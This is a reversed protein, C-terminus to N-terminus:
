SSRSGKGTVAKRSISWGGGGFSSIMSGNKANLAVPRYGTTVYPRSRRRGDTLM